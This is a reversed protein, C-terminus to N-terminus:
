PFIEVPTEVIANGTGVMVRPTDWIVVDILDGGATQTWYGMVNNGTGLTDFVWLFTVQPGYIMWGTSPGLIPDNWTAMTQPAYGDFDAERAELYSLVSSKSIGDVAKLLHMESNVMRTQAADAEILSGSDTRFQIDAM